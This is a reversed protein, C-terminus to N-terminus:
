LRAMTWWLCWNITKLKINHCYHFYKILCFTLFLSSYLIWVILAINRLFNFTKSPNYLVPLGIRIFHSYIECHQWRLWVQCFLIYPWLPRIVHDPNLDSFGVSMYWSPILHITDSTKCRCTHLCHLPYIIQVMITRQEVLFSDHFM